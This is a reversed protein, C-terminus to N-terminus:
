RSRTHDRAPVKEGTVFDAMVSTQIPAAGDPEPTLPM